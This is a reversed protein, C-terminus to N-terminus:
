KKEENKVLKEREALSIFTGNPEAVYIEGTKKNVCYDYDVESGSPAASFIYYDNRIQAYNSYDTSNVYSDTPRYYYTAKSYDAGLISKYSKLIKVAQDLTILKSTSSQSQVAASDDKVAPEATNANTKKSSASNAIMYYEKCAEIKKQALSYRKSDQRDVKKFSDIAESYEKDSELKVANDYAEKSKELNEAFSIKKNLDSDNKYDLAEKYMTVASDYNEQAFAKNGDTLLNNYPEM